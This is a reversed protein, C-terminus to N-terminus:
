ISNATVGARGRDAKDFFQQSREMVSQNGGCLAYGWMAEVRLQDHLPRGICELLTEKASEIARQDNLLIRSVLDETAPMLDDHAVVRSVMNAMLARQASFPEGTLVMELAVASGCANLLRVIGGDASHMGRRVEFTGFQARESAVRIDCAMSLEIGHGLCWGNIAAVIPKTIRSLPGRTIGSLGDELRERGVMPGVKQWGPAHTKLDAGATFADGTGTLIAVRLKPDDRFDKWADCLLLHTEYDVANKCEPRNLTVYAVEGKKEYLVKQGM